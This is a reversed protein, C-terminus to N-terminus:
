LTSVERYQRTDVEESLKHLRGPNKRTGGVYTGEGRRLMEGAVSVAWGVIRKHDNRADDPVTKKIQNAIRRALDRPPPQPLHRKLRYERLAPVLNTLDGPTLGVIDIERFLNCLMNLFELDKGSVQGYARTLGSRDTMKRDDNKNKSELSMAENVPSPPGLGSGEVTIPASMQRRLFEPSTRDDVVSAAPNSSPHEAGTGVDTIPATLGSCILESCSEDPTISAPQESSLLAESSEDDTVPASFEPPNQTPAIDPMRGQIPQLANRPIGEYLVIWRTHRRQNGHSDKRILRSERLTKFSRDITAESIMGGLAIRVEERSPYARCYDPHDPPLTDNVRWALFFLLAKATPTLGTIRTAWQTAATSM